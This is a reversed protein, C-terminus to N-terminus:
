CLHKVAALSAFSEQISFHSYVAALAALASLAFFPTHFGGLDLLLGGFAPGAASGLFFTGQYYALYKGRQEPPAIDGVLVMATTTFLAAGVGQFFRSLILHYINTAFAAILGAGAFIGLGIVILPKRGYRDTLSGAPLDFLLRAIGFASVVFGVTTYPVDFARAYLPLVPSVIGVGLMVLFVSVALM